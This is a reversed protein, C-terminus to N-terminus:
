LSRPHPLMSLGGRRKGGEAEDVGGLAKSAQLYGAKKNSSQDYVGRRVAFRKLGM